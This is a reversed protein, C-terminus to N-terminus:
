RLKKSNLVRLVESKEPKIGSPKNVSNPADSKWTKAHFINCFDIAGCCRGQEKPLSELIEDNNIQGDSTALISSLRLM